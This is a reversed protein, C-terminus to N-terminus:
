EIDTLNEVERLNQDWFPEDMLVAYQAWSTKKNTIRNSIKKNFRKKYVWTENGMSVTNRVCAVTSSLISPACRTEEAVM